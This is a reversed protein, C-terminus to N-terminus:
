STLPFSILGLLQTGIHKDSNSNHLDSFQLAVWVGRKLVDFLDYGSILLSLKLLHWQNPSREIKIIHCVGKITKTHVVDWIHFRSLPFQHLNFSVRGSYRRCNLTLVGAPSPLRCLHSSWCCLTDLMKILRCFSLFWVSRFCRECYLQFTSCFMYAAEGQIILYSASLSFLFYNLQKVNLCTLSM